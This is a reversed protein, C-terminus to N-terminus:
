KKKRNWNENDLHIEKWRSLFSEYKSNKVVFKQGSNPDVGCPFPYSVDIKDMDILRYVYHHTMGYGIEQAAQKVSCIDHPSSTISTTLISM